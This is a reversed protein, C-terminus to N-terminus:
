GNGRLFSLDVVVNGGGNFSSGQSVLSETGEKEIDDYDDAEDANSSGVSQINNQRTSRSRKSRRSDIPANRKNNHCQLRINDNSVSFNRFNYSSSSCPYAEVIADINEVEAETTRNSMGNSKADDYNIGAQKLFEFVTHMTGNCDSLLSLSDVRLCNWGVGEIKQQQRYSTCWDQYTELIDDVILAVREDSEPHEVCIGDKLVVGMCCIKYGKEHLRRVLLRRLLNKSNMFRDHVFDDLSIEADTTSASQFFEIIPIKADDTNPIDSIQLSRVLVCQDRARSLAVNARQFHVLQSQTPTRGKSCVMSLFIVPSM